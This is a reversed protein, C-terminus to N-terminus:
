QTFSGIGDRMEQHAPTDRLDQTFDPDKTSKKGTM